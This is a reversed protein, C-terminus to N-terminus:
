NYWTFLVGKKTYTLLCWKGSKTVCLSKNSETAIVKM